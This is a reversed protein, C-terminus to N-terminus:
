CEIELDFDARTMKKLNDISTKDYSYNVSIEEQEDDDDDYEDNDDENEADPDPLNNQYLENFNKLLLKLRKHYAMEEVEIDYRFCHKELRSILQKLLKVKDEMKELPLTVINNRDIADLEDKFFQIMDWHLNKEEQKQIIRTQDLKLKELRQQEQRISLEKDEREEKRIALKYENDLQKLRIDKDIKEDKFNTNDMYNHNFQKNDYNMLPVTTGPHGPNELVDGSLEIKEISEKTISNTHQLWRHVNSKSTGLIEAITRISKGAKHMEIAQQIKNIEEM